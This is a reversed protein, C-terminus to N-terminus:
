ETPNPLKHSPPYFNRKDDDQYHDANNAQWEATQSQGLHGAARRPLTTHAM